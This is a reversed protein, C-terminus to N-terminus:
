PFAPTVVRVSGGLPDIEILDGDHVLDLLGRVGVVAPVSLERALIATHSFLGGETTVVGALLPFIVNYSTTTTITVLIDGSSLRVMEDPGLVVRATGRAKETGIGIGHLAAQARVPAVAWTAMRVETLRAVGPPLPPEGASGDAEAAEGLHTPPSVLSAAARVDAREALEHTPPGAGHLLADIESPDAEFVLGPDALRGRKALRRGAELATRRVLGLPWNFCMGVDDDRLAYSARADALLEDFHARDPAPVQGRLPEVDPAGRDRARPRARRSRIAALLIEPREGVTPEALDQGALLRWQYQDLYQDLAERADVGADRVDQLTVPDPAGAGDLHDAIRELHLDVEATAPSAGALLGVVQVPDLGWSRATLFLHGAAIDFGAHEFHLPALRQFNEIARRLQDALAADDAATPDEAQLARNAEIAAPREEQLWRRVEDRWPTAKLTAQAREELTALSTGANGSAYYIWGNVAAWRPEDQVFGYREGARVWGRTVPPFIAAHLRSVPRPFHERTSWWLGASPPEWRLEVTM